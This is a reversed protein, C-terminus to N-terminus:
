CSKEQLIMFARFRGKENPLEPMLRFNPREELPDMKWGTALHITDTISPPRPTM